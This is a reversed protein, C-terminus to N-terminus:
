SINLFGFSVYHKLEFLMLIFDHQEKFQLTYSVRNNVLHIKGKKVFLQFCVMFLSIHASATNEM